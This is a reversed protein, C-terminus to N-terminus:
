TLNSPPAHIHRMSWHCCLTYLDKFIYSTPRGRRSSLPNTMHKSVFLSQSQILSTLNSPPAHIHRMSWHCCLTYLDKFIYSTPRGRRSSLPNTMYKSVFLSQSQILSTLNSPPTHIHRMSWHCCLTYLDKFIYSTPRGRRSSLLHTMHKSVFLQSQIPSTLNLPM